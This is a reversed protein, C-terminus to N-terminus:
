VAVLPWRGPATLCALKNAFFIKGVNTTRLINWIKDELKAEITKTWDIREGRRLLPPPPPTIQQEVQSTLGAAFSYGVTTFSSSSPSSPNFRENWFYNTELARGGSSQWRPRRRWWSCFIIRFSLFLNLLSPGDFLNLSLILSSEFQSMKLNIQWIFKILNPRWYAFDKHSHWVTHGSQAITQVKPLKKIGNTVILKGWDEGM